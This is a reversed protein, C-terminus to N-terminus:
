VMDRVRWPLTCHFLRVESSARSEAQSRPADTLQAGHTRPALPQPHARAAIEQPGQRLAERLLAPRPHDQNMRKLGREVSEGKKLKLVIAM